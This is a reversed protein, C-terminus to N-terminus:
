HRSPTPLSLPFCRVARKDGVLGTIPLGCPAVYGQSVQTWGAAASASISLAPVARSVAAILGCQLEFEAREVLCDLEFRLM